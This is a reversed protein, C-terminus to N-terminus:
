FNYTSGTIVDVTGVSTNNEPVARDTHVLYRARVNFFTGLEGLLPFDYDFGFTYVTNLYHVPVPVPLEYIELWQTKQERWIALPAIWREQGFGFVVNIPDILNYVLLSEWINRNFWTIGSTDPMLVFDPTVSQILGGMYLYTTRAIPLYKSLTYRWDVGLHTYHPPKWIGLGQDGNFVPDSLQLWEAMPQAYEGGRTTYRRNWLYNNGSGNTRFAMFGVVRNALMYPVSLINGAFRMQEANYYSITLPSFPIKPTFFLNFAKRNSVYRMDGIYNPSYFGGRTANASVSAVPSLISSYKNVFLGGGIVNTWRGGLNFTPFDPGIEYYNMRYTFSGIIPVKRFSDTIDVKFARDELPAGVGLLPNDNKPYNNLSGDNEIGNYATRAIETKVTMGRFFPVDPGVQTDWTLSRISQNFPVPASGRNFTPDNSRNFFNFAYISNTLAETIAWRVGLNYYPPYKVDGSTGLFILGTSGFPLSDNSWKIGPAGMTTGFGPDGQTMVSRWYSDGDTNTGYGGGANVYDFFQPYTYLVDGFNWLTFPTLSAAVSNSMTIRSGWLLGSAEVSASDSVPFVGGQNARSEGTATIQSGFTIDYHVGDDPTKINISLLVNSHQANRIIQPEWPTQPNLPYGATFNREVRAYNNQLWKSGLTQEGKLKSSQWKDEISSFEKLLPDYAEHIRKAEAVQNHSTENLIQLEERFEALLRSMEALEAVTFTKGSTNKIAQEAQATYFAVDLRTLSDSFYPSNKTNEAQPLLGTAALNYLVSRAWHDSSLTSLMKAQLHVTALLLLAVIKIRFYNL